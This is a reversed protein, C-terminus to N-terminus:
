QDITVVTQDPITVTITKTVDVTYTGAAASSADDVIEMTFIARQPDAYDLTINLNM